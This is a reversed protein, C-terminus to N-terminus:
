ATHKIQDTVPFDGVPAPPIIAPMTRMKTKWTDIGNLIFNFRRPSRAQLVSKAYIFAAISEAFDEGPGGAVSYNTMPQEIWKPDNWNSPEIKYQAPPATKDTFAKQVAAQGIDYLAPPNTVIWGTTNYFNDLANPDAAHAAEAIGHGLEHAINENANKDKSQPFTPAGGSSGVAGYKGQVTSRGAPFGHHGDFAQFITLKGTAFYAGTDPDPVCTGAPDTDYYMQYFVITDVVPISGFTGAMDEFAKIINSYKESAAGPSWDQWNPITPLKSNRGTISSEQEQKTGNHVDKVGFNHKVYDEFDARSISGQPIQRHSVSPTQTQNLVPQGTANGTNNPMPIRQIVNGASRDPKFFYNEQPMRMVSDAMADAQQEYVDNPQNVTLKPQFFVAGAKQKDTKVDRTQQISFM